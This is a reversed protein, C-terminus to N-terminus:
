SRGYGDLSPDAAPHARRPTYHTRGIRSLIQEIASLRGVIDDLRRNQSLVAAWVAGLITIMIPLTIQIVPLLAPPISNLM